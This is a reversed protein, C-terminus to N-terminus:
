NWSVSFQLTPPCNLHSIYFFCCHMYSELPPVTSIRNVLMWKNCSDGEWVLRDSSLSGVNSQVSLSEAVSCVSWFASNIIASSFTGFVVLWRCHWLCGAPCHNNPPTSHVCVCVYVLTLKEFHLSHSEYWTRGLKMLAIDSLNFHSTLWHLPYHSM